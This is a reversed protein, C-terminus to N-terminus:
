PVIELRGDSYVSDKAHLMVSSWSRNRCTVETCENFFYNSRHSPSFTTVQRSFM